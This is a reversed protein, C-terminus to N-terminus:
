KCNAQAYRKRRGKAARLAATSCFGSAPAACETVLPDRKLDVLAKQAKAELRTLEEGISVADGKSGLQRLELRPTGAPPAGPASAM